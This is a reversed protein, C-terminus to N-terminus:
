DSLQALEYDLQQITENLKQSADNLDVDTHKKRKRKRRPKQSSLLPSRESRAGDSEDADDGSDSLQPPSDSESGSKRGSGDTQRNSGSSKGSSAKSSAARVNAILRNVAATIEHGNAAAIVPAAAGNATVCAWQGVALTLTYTEEMSGDDDLKNFVFQDKRATFSFRHYDRIGLCHEAIASIQKTISFDGKDQVLALQAPLLRRSQSKTHDPNYDVADLTIPM